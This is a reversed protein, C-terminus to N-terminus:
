EVPSVIFTISPGKLPKVPVMSLTLSSFLEKSVSCETQFKADQSTENKALSKRVTLYLSYPTEQFLFILGSKIVSKLIMDCANEINQASM